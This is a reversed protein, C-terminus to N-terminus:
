RQDADYDPGPCVGSEPRQCFISASLLPDCGCYGPPPEVVPPLKVKSRFRYPIKLGTRERYRRRCYLCTAESPDRTLIRTDGILWGCEVRAGLVRTPEPLRLHVYRDVARRAPRVGTGM